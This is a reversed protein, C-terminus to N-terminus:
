RLRLISNNPPTSGNKEDLKKQLGKTFDEVPGPRAVTIAEMADFFKTYICRELKLQLRNTKTDPVLDFLMWSIDAEQESCEPLPPLTAFFSTQLAIAQKKKWSKLIGGKFLIQPALRKRSSSLFDPKVSSPTLPEPDPNNRVSMYENFPIRVNGSIYVGQVELSGFDTVRGEKDYSVLVYDINGASKGSADRLRVERVDTWETGEPFFFKSAPEFLILDETFRIPCTIVAHDNHEVSCVGLPDTAKDKTCKAVVNHFPCYKNKRIREAEESLNAAPYGFVEALPFFNSM